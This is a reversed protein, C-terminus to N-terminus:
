RPPRQDGAGTPGSPSPRLALANSVRWVGPLTRAFHVPLGVAFPLPPLGAVDAGPRGPSRASLFGPLGLSVSSLLDANIPLVGAGGPLPLGPSTGSLTGVLADATGAAGAGANLRLAAPLPSNAPTSSASSM